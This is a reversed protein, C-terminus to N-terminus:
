DRSRVEVMADFRLLSALQSAAAVSNADGDGITLAIHTSDFTDLALDFSRWQGDVYAITWSHPMFANSVGHYAARSYTLGSVVRTPIGAARGLAALLVAAETCDGARRIITDLASYHGNFDLSALYPRARELLLEMKRADSVDLRAVPAAISLLRPHDSQLWASPRRADALAQADDALGPGCAVCIDVIAAGDELLVRQEGTQPPAFVLGDEFAFRYRIRGDRAASSITVPARIMSNRVVAYPPHPALATARDALRVHVTTGVLPQVREAVRGAANLRIRAIGRLQGDVYRRRIALLENDATRSLPEIVVQEVVAADISFNNFTLVHEGDWQALLAEGGDFRTDPPIAIAGTWRGAPTQRVIEATSASIRVDVRTQERGRRSTEVISIARGDAAETTITESILRTAAGGQERLYYEHRGISRRGGDARAQTESTLHGLRAGDRDSIVYYAIDAEARTQASSVSIVACFAIAAVWPKAWWGM